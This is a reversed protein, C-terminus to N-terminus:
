WLPRLGRVLFYAAGRAGHCTGDFFTEEDIVVQELFDAAPLGNLDKVVRHYAMIQLERAPFLVALFWNYEELGTHNPNAARREGGARWASASRHHGDAVYACDIRRFADIYSTPNKVQWM